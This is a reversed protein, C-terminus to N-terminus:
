DSKPQMKRMLTHKLYSNWDIEAVRRDEMGVFLSMAVYCLETCTSSAMRLGRAEVLPM